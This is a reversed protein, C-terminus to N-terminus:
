ILGISIVTVPEESGTKKKYIGREQIRSLCPISEYGQQM